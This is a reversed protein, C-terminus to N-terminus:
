ANALITFFCYLARIKVVRAIKTAPGLPSKRFKIEVRLLVEQIWFKRDIFTPVTPVTFLTKPM